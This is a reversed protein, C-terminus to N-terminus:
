SPQAVFYKAPSQDESSISKDKTTKGSGGTMKNPARWVKRGVEKNTTVFWILWCGVSNILRTYSSGGSMCETILSIRLCYLQFKM